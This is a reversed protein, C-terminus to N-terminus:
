LKNRCADHKKKKKEICAHKSCYQLRPYTAMSIEKTKQTKKKKKTKNGKRNEKKRNRFRKEINRRLKLRTGQKM